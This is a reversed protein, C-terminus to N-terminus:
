SDCLCPSIDFLYKESINFMERIIYTFEAKKKKKKKKPIQRIQYTNRKRRYEKIKFIILFCESKEPGDRLEGLRGGDNLSM